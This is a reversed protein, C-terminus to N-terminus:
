WYVQFVGMRPSMPRAPLPGTQDPVPQFKARDLAIRMSGTRHVLRGNARRSRSRAALAEDLERDEYRGEHEEEEAHELEPEHERVVQGEFVGRAFAGPGPGGERVSGLVGGDHAVISGCIMAATSRTSVLEPEGILSGLTVDILIQFAVAAPTGALLAWVLM